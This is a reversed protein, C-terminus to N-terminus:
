PGSDSREKTQRRVRGFRSLSGLIFKLMHFGRPLNSKRSNVHRAVKMGESLKPM